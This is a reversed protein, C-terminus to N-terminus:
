SFREISLAGVDIDPVERAVLQSALKGTVPGLGMGIMAHGTALILNEYAGSRCIVPLGDPTCPRLGRWIEIVELNETGSLYARANELFADIRRQNITLDLGALELTGAFRVTEGMPTVAVSAEKLLLPMSPGNGSNRYTVSYGKAGQVPLRIGLDRTLVPSWAGGALVVDQPTFDGRTTRVKSIRRGETEFGLVETSTRIDTGHGRALGALQTVMEAPLIHADDPFYLGGRVDPHIQPEMDRVESRGLIRAEIGFSQMLAAEQGAEELGKSTNCLSLHGAEQYGFDLGGLGALERYLGRSRAYLEGIVVMSKEM